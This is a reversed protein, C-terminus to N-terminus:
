SKKSLCFDQQVHMLTGKFLCVKWMKEKKEGNLSQMQGFLCRKFMHWLMEFEPILRNHTM